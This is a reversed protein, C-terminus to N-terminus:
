VEETTWITNEEGIRVEFFAASAVESIGQCIM